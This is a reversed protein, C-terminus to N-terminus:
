HDTKLLEEQEEETLKQDVLRLPVFLAYGDDDEPHNATDIFHNGFKNRIYLFEKGSWQAITCRRHDGLYYSGLVLDKKAIM